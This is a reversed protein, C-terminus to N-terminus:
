PVAQSARKVLRHGRLDLGRAALAAAWGSRTGIMTTDTYLGHREEAETLRQFKRRLPHDADVFCEKRHLIPPNASARYDRTTMRFTQLDITVSTSLAPHADTDFAPYSLYSVQRKSRHLKVLNAEPVAGTYARACGEYLRLVIPLDNIASAHIYFAAPTVKGVHASSIVREVRDVSGLSFLLADAEALAPKYGSFSAKIDEQIPRALESWKPRSDFRSLALYVLLDERRRLQALAMAVGVDPEARLLASQARRWGGFRAAVMALDPLEAAIPARGHEVLFTRLPELDKHHEAYLFSADRAPRARHQRQFRSAAYASREAGDRFLYLIGPAAVIAPAGLTAEVWARLDQQEFFKQFTQRSTLWGDSFGQLEGVQGIEGILRASVVMLRRTLAWAAQLVANREGPDEIVNVVYGLNVIDSPGRAGDPRHVPDWGECEYGNARLLRLDGGRGCGYDFITTGAPLLGDDIARQMPRSLSSRAM